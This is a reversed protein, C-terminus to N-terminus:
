VSPMMAYVKAEWPFVPERGAWSTPVDRAQSIERWKKGPPLAPWNAVVYESTPNSPDPTQFDSFNAIVVVVNGNEPRGRQWVVVRKGDNFDVHM